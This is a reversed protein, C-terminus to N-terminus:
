RRHLLEQIRKALRQGADLARDIKKAIEYPDEGDFWRGLANNQTAEVCANADELTLVFQVLDDALDPFEHGVLLTDKVEKLVKTNERATDLISPVRDATHLECIVDFMELLQNHILDLSGAFACKARAIERARRAQQDRWYLTTPVGAAVLVSLIGGIAQVWDAASDQSPRPDPGHGGSTLAWTVVVGAVFTLVAVVAWDRDTRGQKM